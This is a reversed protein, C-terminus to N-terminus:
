AVKKVITNDHEVGWNKLYKRATEIRKIDQNRLTNKDPTKIEFTVSGQRRHDHSFFLIQLKVRLVLADNWPLTAKSVANRIWDLTDERSKTRLTVEKQGYWGLTMSKLQIDILDLPDTTLSFGAEKFVSLDYVPGCYEPVEEPLVTEIFIRELARKTKEGGKAHLELTGEASNYLFVVEFTPRSRLLVLQGSEDHHLVHRIYDDPYAIFYHLNKRHNRMEVTCVKGRGQKAVFYNQLTQELTERIDANWPPVSKPLGDRKRWLTVHEIKHCELAKQFVEPYNLWSWLSKAYPGDKENSLSFWGSENREEATQCLANLGSACALSNVDHCVSEFEDQKSLPLEQFLNQFVDIERFKLKEWPIEHTDIQLEDYLRKLLSHPVMRYFTPFSFVKAM